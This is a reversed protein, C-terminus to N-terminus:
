DKLMQKPTIKKETRAAKDVYIMFGINKQEFMVEANNVPDQVLCIVKKFM